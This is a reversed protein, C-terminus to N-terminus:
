PKLFYIIPKNRDALMFGGDSMPMPIGPIFGNQAGMVPLEGLTKGTSLDLTYFISQTPVAAQTSFTLTFYAFKESIAVPSSVPYSFRRQWLKMTDEIAFADIGSTLEIGSDYFGSSLVMNGNSAINIPLYPIEHSSIKKLSYGGPGNYIGFIGVNMTREDTRPRKSLYGFAIKAITNGSSKGCLCINSIIRLEQKHFREQFVEFLVREGDGYLRDGTIISDCAGFILNHQADFIISNYADKQTGGWPIQKGTKTSLAFLTKGGSINEGAMILGTDTLVACGPIVGTTISYKEKTQWRLKGSPDFADVNGSSYIIYAGSADTLINTISGDGPISAFIKASKENGAIITSTHTMGDSILYNYGGTTSFPIPPTSFYNHLMSDKGKALSVLTSPIVFSTVTSPVGINEVFRSGEM